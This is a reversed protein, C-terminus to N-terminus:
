KARAKRSARAAKRLAKKKRAEAIVSRCYVLEALDKLTWFHQHKRGRLRVAIIGTTRNVEVTATSGYKPDVETRFRAVGKKKAKPEPPQVRRVGMSGFTLTQGLQLSNVQARFGEPAGENEAMFQDLTITRTREEGFLWVELFTTM